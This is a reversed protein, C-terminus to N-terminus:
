QTTQLRYYYHRQNPTNMLTIAFFFWEIFYLHSCWCVLLVYSTDIYLISLFFDTSYRKKESKRESMHCLLYFHSHLCFLQRTCNLLINVNSDLSPSSSNFSFTLILCFYIHSFSSLRKLQQWWQTMSDSFKNQLMIYYCFWKLHPSLKQRMTMTRVITRTHLRFIFLVHVCFIMKLNKDILNGM